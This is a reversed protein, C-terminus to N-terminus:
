YNGYYEQIKLEILNLQNDEFINLKCIKSYMNLYFSLKGNKTQSEKSELAHHEWNDNIIVSNWTAQIDKNKRNWRYKIFEKKSLNKGKSLVFIQSRHDYNKVWFKCGIEKIKYSNINLPSILATLPPPITKLPIIKIGKSPDPIKLPKQNIFPPM